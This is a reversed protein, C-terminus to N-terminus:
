QLYMRQKKLLIFYLPAGILGTLITLPLEAATITRALTDIMLMFAAGLLVSVPLLKVNDPGVLIRGLHPVVLGIWGITGSICVTCATLLTSCIIVIVRTRDVRVGLSRAEREGLSLINLQWRIVLVITGALLIAPVVALLSRPLVKAISGMQWYTIEALQTEPDAIYKILGMISNMLGTVIIGALVLMMSSDRKLMKPISTTICVALIGGLFALIQVSIGGLNALIAIAAGISAGSSVGLLDPAVLPNQFVSQYVAGSLALAGGTIIAALIRPLRLSLVIGLANKDMSESIPLVVSLLSRLVDGPSVKYRGICIALLSLFVILVVLSLFVLRYPVKRVQVVDTATKHRSVRDQKNAM